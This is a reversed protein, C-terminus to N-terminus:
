TPPDPGSSSSSGGTFADTLREVLEGLTGTGLTVSSANGDGGGGSPIAQAGTAPTAPRAPSAGGGQEGERRRRQAAKKKAAFRQTDPRRKGRRIVKRRVQPWDIEWVQQGLLRQIRARGSRPSGAPFTWQGNEYSALWYTNVQGLGRQHSKLFGKEEADRLLRSVYSPDIDLHHAIYYQSVSDVFFKGEVHFLYPCCSNYLIRLATKQQASLSTTYDLAAPAITYAGDAWTTSKTYEYREEYPNWVRRTNRETRQLTTEGPYFRIFRLNPMVKSQGPTLAEHGRTEHRERHYAAVEVRGEATLEKGYGSWKPYDARRDRLYGPLEEPPIATSSRERFAERHRELFSKQVKEAGKEETHEKPAGGEAGFTPPTQPVSHNHQKEVM